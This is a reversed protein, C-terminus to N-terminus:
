AFVWETINREDTGFNVGIKGTCGYDFSVM